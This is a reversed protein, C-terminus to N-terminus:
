QAEEIIDAYYADLAFDEGKEGNLANKTEQLGNFEGYFTVTDGELIKSYGESNEDRKDFIWVMKDFYSGSGDDTYAKYYTGASWKESASFIQVTIKYKQGVYQDPNRMIDNYDVEQCQAIYDDRSLQPEETSESSDEKKSENNSKDYSKEQSVTEQKTSKSSDKDSNDSSLGGFGIMFYFVLFITLIVRVVINRPRKSIWLLLIGVPPICICMIVIFWTREFAKPKQPPQYCGNQQSFNQNQQQHCYSYNYNSNPNPEPKRYGYNPDQQPPPLPAGCWGCFRQGDPNPANCRPCNM